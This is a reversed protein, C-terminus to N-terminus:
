HLFTKDNNTGGKSSDDDMNRGADGVEGDLVEDRAFLGANPTVEPSRKPTRDHPVAPSFDSTLSGEARPYAKARKTRELALLLM